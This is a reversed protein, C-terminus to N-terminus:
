CPLWSIGTAREHTDRVPFHLSKVVRVERAKNATCLVSPTPPHPLTQKPWTSTATRWPWCRSVTKCQPLNFIDLKIQVTSLQNERRTPTSPRLTAAPAGGSVCIKVAPAQPVFGRRPGGSEKSTLDINDTRTCPSAPPAAPPLACLVSACVLVRSYKVRGAFRGAGRRSKTETYSFSPALHRYSAM